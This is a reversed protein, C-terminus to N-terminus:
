PSVAYLRAVEQLDAETLEQPCSTLMPAMVAPAELHRAGLFHGVEHLLTTYLCAETRLAAPPNAELVIDAEIIEPGGGDGGFLPRPHRFRLTTEGAQHMEASSRGLNGWAIENVRNRDPLSTECAAQREAAVGWAEFAGQVLVALREVDVFGAGRQEVICYNVPLEQWSADQVEPPVTGPAVPEIREYRVCGALLAGASLLAVVSRM